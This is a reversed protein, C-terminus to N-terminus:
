HDPVTGKNEVEGAAKLLHQALLKGPETGLRSIPGSISLAGILKKKKFIPVSVSAVGEERESISQAWGQQIIREKEQGDMELGDWASIVKGASGVNLPFRAGVPVTNKLGEKPEISILCVRTDGERVYLQTSEKTVHCLNILTPKTIAILNSLKSSEGWEIIQSGISYGHETQIILHHQELALLLRHVTSRPIKTEEIIESLSKEGGSICSLITVVKDLVGVKSYNKDKELHDVDKVINM